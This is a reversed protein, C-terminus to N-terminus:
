ADSQEVITINVNAARSGAIKPEWDFRGCSRFYSPTLNDVRECFGFERDLRCAGALSCAAAADDPARAVLFGMAAGRAGMGAFEGRQGNENRSETRSASM